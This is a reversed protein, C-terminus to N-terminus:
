GRQGTAAYGKPLQGGARRPSFHMWWVMDFLEIRSREPELERLREWVPENEPRTLDAAYRRQRLILSVWREYEASLESDGQVVTERMIRQLEEPPMGVIYGHARDCGAGAQLIALGELWNSSRVLPGAADHSSTRARAVQAVRRRTPRGACPRSGISALRERVRHASASSRSGRAPRQQRARSPDVLERLLLSLRERQGEDELAGLLREWHEPGYRAALRALDGILRPDVDTVTDSREYFDETSVSNADQVARMTRSSSRHETDLDRRTRTQILPAENRFVYWGQDKAVKRVDSRSRDHELKNGSANFVVGLVEVSENYREAFDSISYVALSLGITSLFELKVPIVVGDSAMYAATTLM